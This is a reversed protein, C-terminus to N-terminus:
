LTGRRLLQSTSDDPRQEESWRRDEVESDGLRSDKSRQDDLYLSSSQGTIQQEQEGSRRRSQLIELEIEDPQTGPLLLSEDFHRGDEMDPPDNWSKRSVPEGIDIGWRLSPLNREEEDRDKTTDEPLVRKWWGLAANRWIEEDELRTVGDEKLRRVLESHALLSLQAAIPGPSKPLIARRPYRFFTWIYCCLMTGLLVGLAITTPEDQYIRPELYSLTGNLKQPEIGEATANEAAFRRYETLLESNYAVILTEVAKYWEQPDLLATLNHLKYESYVSLWQFFHDSNRREPWLSDGKLFSYSSFAPVYGSRRTSLGQNNFYQEDAKITSSDFSKPTWTDDSRVYTADVLVRTLGVTGNFNLGPTLSVNWSEELIEDGFIISAGHSPPSVPNSTDYLYAGFNDKRGTYYGLYKVESCVFADFWASDTVKMCGDEDEWKFFFSENPISYSINVSIAPVRIKVEEAAMNATLDLQIDTLDSLLLNELAGPRSDMNLSPIQTWEVFQRAHSSVVRNMQNELLEEVFEFHTILSSDVTTEIPYSTTTSKAGYLGAALIKIIPMLYIATTSAIRSFGTRNIVSLPHPANNILPNASAQWLSRYPSVEDVAAGIGSCSYGIIVLITSSTLKFANQLFDDDETLGNNHRSLLALVLLICITVAILLSCFAEAGLRLAIPQWGSDKAPTTREYDPNKSSKRCLLGIGEDVQTLRWDLPKLNREMTTTASKEEQSYIKHIPSTSSSLLLAGAALRGPDVFISCNPRLLTGVLISICGIFLLASQLVRLISRHLLVRPGVVRVTGAIPTSTNKRARYNVHQTIIQNALQEVDKRFRERDDVYYELDSADGETLIGFFTDMTATNVNSSLAAQTESFDVSQASDRWPLYAGSVTLQNLYLVLEVMNLIPDVKTAEGRPIINEVNGTSGNIAIEVHQKYFDVSCVLATSPELTYYHRYDPEDPDQGEYHSNAITATLVAETSGCSSINLWAKTTDAATFDGGVDLQYSVPVSHTCDVIPDDSSSPSLIYETGNSAKQYDFLSCDFQTSFSEVEATMLANIDLDTSNPAFSEFAYSDHTWPAFSEGPLRSFVVSAYPLSDLHNKPAPISGNPNSLTGNFNFTSNVFFEAPEQLYALPDVFTLSNALPSLAGCLFGVLLALFLAFHRCRAAQFVSIIEVNTTYDLLVSQSSNAWKNTMSAWPMIKKLDNTVEKWIFSLIVVGVTPLYRAAWISSKHDKEDSIGSNKQFMLDMVQLIAALLWCYLALPFIRSKRLMPAVWPTSKRVPSEGDTLFAEQSESSNPM